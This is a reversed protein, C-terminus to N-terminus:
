NRNAALLAAVDAKLKILAADVSASSAYLAIRYVFVSKNKVITTAFLVVQTKDTGIETRLKQLLGSYCATRDEALVGMFSADNIKVRELAGEVKSKMDPLKDAVLKDGQARLFACTQKVPETQPQDMLRISTQYQGMDDLLQRNGTRWDALQQCDASIGLLKNGMKVVLDTVATIMRRDSPDSDTFECFGAPPPLNIFVGGITTEAAMVSSTAAALAVAIYIPRSLM